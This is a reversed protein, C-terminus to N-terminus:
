QFDAGLVQGDDPRLAYWWAQSSVSGSLMRVSGDCLGILIGSPRPAHALYASCVRNTGDNRAFVCDLQFHVNPDVVGKRETPIYDGQEPGWGFAPIWEIYGPACSGTSGGAYYEAYFAMNYIAYLNAWGVLVAGAATDPMFAQGVARKEAFMVTNSTGDSIGTISRPPRLDGVPKFGGSSAQNVVAGLAQYNGAYGAVTYFRNDTVDWWKGDAPESADCPNMYTKPLFSQGLPSKFLAQMSEGDIIRAYAGQEVYPLIHGFVTNENWGNVVPNSATYRSGNYTFVPPLVNRADHFTHAALGIQKLNNISQTRAAAERVKQVAPLLLGILVAIIAIVVL